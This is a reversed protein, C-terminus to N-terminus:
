MQSLAYFGVAFRMLSGALIAWCTASFADVLKGVLSQDCTASIVSLMSLVVSIIAVMCASFSVVLDIM